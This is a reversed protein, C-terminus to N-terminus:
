PIRQFDIERLNQPIDIIASIVQSNYPYILSPGIEKFTQLLLPSLNDQFRDILVDFYTKGLSISSIFINAKAL